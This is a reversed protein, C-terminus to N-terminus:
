AADGIWMRLVNAAADPNEKVLDQLEAKLDPGSSQFRKRLAVAPEVEEDETDHTAALRPGHSGASAAAAPAPAPSGATSRVMSRVMLLSFCGLLVMGLTQWNDALWTQAQAAFTPLTPAQTPLDTFTSVTIHPYPNTGEVVPPLLNRVTEKIRERVETEIQAVAAVDLPKPEQGAPAPNRERWVRAYYSSPV